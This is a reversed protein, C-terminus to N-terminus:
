AAAGFQEFVVNSGADRHAVLYDAWLKLAAKREEWYAYQDYIADLGPLKHNMCMESIDRGVGLKRLYSKMTSRLDHPTFWRVPPKHNTHWHEIAHWIIDKCAHTDGGTANFRTMRRAPLVYASNGVLSREAHEKLERFWGVVPPALPIDFARGKKNHPIHWRGEDLHVDQWKAFSLESVRVGTALLIAVSLRNEVSMQANLVARLENADLMLRKRVEPRKGVVANLEIGGCPNVTLIRKAVAHKFIAKLVCWLTFCEVRGINAGDLVGVVDGATVEQVSLGGIAAAVRKLNRGYSVQTSPALGSLTTTTYDAILQRVSWDRRSKSARLLTAPNAGRQVTLRHEAAVTRAEKLTLDPYRGLTLEFRRGGHRYRLVWAATGAASLTFTLGEGDSVACPTGKAVLKRLALDSLLNANTKPM